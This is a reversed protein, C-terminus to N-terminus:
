LGWLSMMVQTEGATPGARRSRAGAASSSAGNRGRRPGGGAGYPAARRENRRRKTDERRDHRLGSAGVGDSGNGSSNSNGSGSDTGSSKKHSDAVITTTASDQFLPLAAGENDGRTSTGPGAPDSQPAAANSEGRPDRPASTRGRPQKGTVAIFFVAM